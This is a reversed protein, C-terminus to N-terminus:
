TESGPPDPKPQAMAALAAQHVATMPLSRLDLCQGCFFAVRYESDVYIEHLFRWNHGYGPRAACRSDLFVARVEEGTMGEIM